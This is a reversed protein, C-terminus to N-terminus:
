IVESDFLQEQRGLHPLFFGNYIRQWELERLCEGRDANVSIVFSGDSCGNKHVISGLIESHLDDGNLFEDSVAECSMCQYLIYGEPEKEWSYRERKM